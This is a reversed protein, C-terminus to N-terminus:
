QSEDKFGINVGKTYFPTGRGYLLTYSLNLESKGAGKSRM